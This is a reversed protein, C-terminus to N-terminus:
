RAEVGADALFAQEVDLVLSRHERFTVPHEGGAAPEGEGVPDRTRAETLALAFLEPPPHRRRGELAEVPVARQQATGAEARDLGLVNRDLPARDQSLAHRLEPGRARF